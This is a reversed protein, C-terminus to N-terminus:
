PSIKSRIDVIDSEIKELRKEMPEQNTNENTMSAINPSMKSISQQSIAGRGNPTTLQNKLEDIERQLSAIKSSEANNLSVLIVSLSISIM